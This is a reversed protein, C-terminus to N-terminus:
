GAAYAANAVLQLKCRQAAAYQYHPAHDKAGIPQHQVPTMSRPVLEQPLSERTIMKTQRKSRTENQRPTKLYRVKVSPSACCGKAVRLLTRRLKAVNPLAQHLAAVSKPQGLTFKTTMRGKHPILLEQLSGM